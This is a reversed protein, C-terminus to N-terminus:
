DQRSTSPITIARSVEDAKGEDEGDDSDDGFDGGAGGAGQGMQAM